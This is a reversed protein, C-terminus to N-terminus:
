WELTEQEKKFYISEEEKGAASKIKVLEQKKIIQKLESSPCYQNVPCLDCHPGRPLCVIQGYGVM